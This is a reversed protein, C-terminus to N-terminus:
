LEDSRDGNAAHMAYEKRLFAWLDRIYRMPINILRSGTNTLALSENNLLVYQKVETEKTLNM